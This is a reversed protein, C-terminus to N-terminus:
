KQEGILVKLGDTIAMPLVSIHTQGEYEKTVWNIKEFKESLILQNMQRWSTVIKEEDLTGIATFIKVQNKNDRLKGLDLTFLYKNDWILAPSIILYNDFIHPSNFLTYNAFLGGFSLGVITRNTWNIRYKDLAPNIEHEISSKFKDAGGALPWEGWNKMKDKTPTYDRSRKQWWNNKYSIGVIISPPIEQGFTLWRSIDTAIGFTRDADLVFVVPYKKKDNEYDLPLSVQIYFTDKVHESIIIFEEANEVAVTKSEQGYATWPVSFVLLVSILYYRNTLTKSTM